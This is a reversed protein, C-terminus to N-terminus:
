LFRIFLGPPLICIFWVTVCSVRARVKAAARDQNCAYAAVAGLGDDSQRLAQAQGAVLTEDADLDLTAEDADVSVVCGSRDMTVTLLFQFPLVYFVQQVFM